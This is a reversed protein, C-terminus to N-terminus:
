EYVYTKTAIEGDSVTDTEKTLRGSGDFVYVYNVTAYLAGSGDMLRQTAPLFKSPQPYYTPNIRVNLPKDTYTFTAITNINGYGDSNVDQTM